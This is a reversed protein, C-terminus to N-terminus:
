RHTRPLLFLVSSCDQYNQNFLPKFAISCRLFHVRILIYADTTIGPPVLSRQVGRVDAYGRRNGKGKGFGAPPDRACRRCCRLCYEVDDKVPTKRTKGVHFRGSRSVIEPEIITRRRAAAAVCPCNRSNNICVTASCDACILASSVQSSDEM